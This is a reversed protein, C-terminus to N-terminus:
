QDKIQALDASYFMKGEKDVIIASVNNLSEVLTLGNKVGLVFVSTSLADAFTSNDALITV